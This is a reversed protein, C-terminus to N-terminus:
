AKAINDPDFEYGTVSLGNVVANHKANGDADFRGEFKFDNGENNSFESHNGKIFVFTNGMGVRVVDVDPGLDNQSDSGTKGFYTGTFRVNEGASPMKVYDEEVDKYSDNSFLTFALVAVVVIAVAAIIIINKNDM